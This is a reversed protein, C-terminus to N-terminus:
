QQTNLSYSKFSRLMMEVRDTVFTDEHADQVVAEYIERDTSECLAKIVMVAPLMYEQKRYSFRFVVGGDTLYHITVGM